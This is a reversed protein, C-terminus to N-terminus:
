ETSKKAPHNKKYILKKSGGECSGVVRHRTEADPAITELTYGSVGKGELKKAIKDKIAECPTVAARASASALMLGSMLGCILGKTLVSKKM